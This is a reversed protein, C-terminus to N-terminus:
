VLVLLFFGLSFIGCVFLYSCGFSIVSSVRFSVFRSPVRFEFRIEFRCELRFEFRVETFAISSSDLSWWFGRYRDMEEQAVFDALGHTVGNSRGGFTLQVPAPLMVGAEATAEPAPPPTNGYEEAKLAAIQARAKQAPTLTPPPDVPSKSTHTCM